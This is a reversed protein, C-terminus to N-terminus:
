RALSVLAAAEGLIGSFTHLVHVVPSLWDIVRRNGDRYEEFRNATEQLLDLIDNASDCCQLKNAFPNHSIDIGTHDAYDAFAKTILHFNSSSITTSSM